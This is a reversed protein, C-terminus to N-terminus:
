FRQRNTGLRGFNASGNAEDHGKPVDTPVTSPMATVQSTEGEPETEFSGPAFDRSSVIKEVLERSTPDMKVFKLGM